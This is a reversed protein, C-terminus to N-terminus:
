FHFETRVILMDTTQAYGNPNQAPYFGRDVKAGGNGDIFHGEFKLDTFRGIDFKASLDQDYIHNAPLSWVASWVPIYRGNYAGLEVWRTFRYSAGVFWFRDDYSSPSSSPAAYTCVGATTCSFKSQITSTERLQRRFEGDLRLNHFAYETYFGNTHDAKTYKAYPSPVLVLQTNWYYNIGTTTLDKAIFSAGVMLGKIPMQWRLDGGFSTGGYSNLITIHGKAVPTTPPSNIGDVFGGHMDDPQKGGYTTYTIRGLRRVRIRGTIDGGIHAINEGRLDVPYVSQPLLAWPYLFTLDQTDNYLGMTTKVQGGRFELWNKAKYDIVAWDLSPHWDGLVGVNRDYVQAGVHVKEGLDTALNLGADTLGFSGDNSSTEMTLYNNNKSKLYSQTGFGHMQVTHNLLKFDQAHLGTSVTLFAVLAIAKHKDFM